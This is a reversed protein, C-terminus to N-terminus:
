LSKLITLTPCQMFDGIFFLFVGGLCVQSNLKYKSGLLSSSAVLPPKKVDAKTVQKTHKEQVEAEGTVHKTYKQRLDILRKSYDTGKEQDFDEVAEILSNVVKSEVSCTIDIQTLFLCEAFKLFTEYTQNRVYSLAVETGKKPKSDCRKIVNEPIAKREELHPRIDGWKFEKILAGRLINCVHHHPQAM